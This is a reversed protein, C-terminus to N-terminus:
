YDQNNWNNAHSQTSSDGGLKSDISILLATTMDNIKHKLIQLFYMFFSNFIMNVASLKAAKVM